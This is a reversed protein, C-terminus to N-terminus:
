TGPKRHIITRYRGISVFALTDSALCIDSKEMAM